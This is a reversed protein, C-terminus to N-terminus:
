KSRSSSKSTVEVGAPCSGDGGNNPSFPCYRCNVSNPKVPWTKATTFDRARQDWSPFLRMVTERDYEKPKIYGEDVYAFRIRAKNMEPYRLFAAIAYLLGQQSHKVENGYRKGTKWDVVEYAYGDPWKVLLDLKIRAWCNDAFWGTQQWNIDFAWDEEVEVFGRGYGERYTDILDGVKALSPDLQQAEGKVYSEAAEHVAIGRLRAIEGKNDAPRPPEPRKEVYKFFAM